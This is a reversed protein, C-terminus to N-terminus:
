RFARAAVKSGTVACAVCTALVLGVLFGGVAAVAIYMRWDGAAAACCLLASDPQTGGLCVTQKHPCVTCNQTIVTVITYYTCMCM